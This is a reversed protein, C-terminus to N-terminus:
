TRINTALETAEKLKLLPCNQRNTSDCTGGGKKCEHFLTQHQCSRILVNWPVSEALQRELDAIRRMLEDNRKLLGAIYQGTAGLESM